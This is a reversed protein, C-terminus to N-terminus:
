PKTWTQAVPDFAWARADEPTTPWPQNAAEAPTLIWVDKVLGYLDITYHVLFRGGILGGPVVTMNNADHIRAGPALRALEGNLMVEPAQVFVLAGRLANQPFNRQVQAAVPLALTLAAALFLARRLM